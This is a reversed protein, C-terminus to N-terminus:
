EGATLTVRYLEAGGAGYITLVATGPALVKGGANFTASGDSHPQSVELVLPNDTTVKTVGETTVDLADGVTVAQEGAGTIFIPPLVSASGSTASPATTTAKATSGSTTSPASTTTTASSDDADDSCAGLVPTVAVFALLAVATLPTRRM